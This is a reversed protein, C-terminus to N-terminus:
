VSPRNFYEGRRPGDAISAPELKLRPVDVNSNPKPTGPVVVFV